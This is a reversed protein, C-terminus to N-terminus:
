GLDPLERLLNRLSAREASPRFHRALRRSRRALGALFRPNSECHALLEALEATAGVSFLGPHDEGLLGTSGAIRSALVPLGSVAAESVVNAGGEMRSSLVLAHSRSMVRRVQWRPVEGRWVYRPNRAMEREARARMADDMAAGLHVIRVRSQPALRRAAHAARFPDKVSRLHGVVCVDFTRVSKPVLSPAPHASQLVVRAKERHPPTLSALAAPQLVILRDALDLSRQVRPSRDLDGYLDTGTLVVILPHHPRDRRFRAIAPYSRRAHLAILADPVAGRDPLSETIEVSHGLDRLLGRWRTATVRNGKRSYPPAPTVISLKM